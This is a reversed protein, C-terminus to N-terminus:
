GARELLAIFQAGITWAAAVIALAIVVRAASVEYWYPGDCPPIIPARHRPIRPANM